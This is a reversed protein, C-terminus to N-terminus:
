LYTEQLKNTTQINTESSKNLFKDVFTNIIEPKKEVTKIIANQFEEKDLINSLSTPLKPYISKALDSLKLNSDEDNNNNDDYEVGEYDIDYNDRLRRIKKKYNENSSKLSLIDHELISQTQRHLQSHQSKQLEVNNYNKLMKLGIISMFGLGIMLTIIVELEVFCSNM